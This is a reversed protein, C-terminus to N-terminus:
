ELILKKQSSCEMCSDSFTINIGMLYPPHYIIVHNWTWHVLFMIGLKSPNRMHVTSLSFGRASDLVCRVFPGQSCDVGGVTSGICTCCESIVAAMEELHKLSKPVSGRMCAYLVYLSLFITFRQSERHEWLHEQWNCCKFLSHGWGLASFFRKHAPSLCWYIRNNQLYSTDQKILAVPTCVVTGLCM